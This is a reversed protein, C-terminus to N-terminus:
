VEGDGAKGPRFGSGGSSRHPKGADGHVAPRPRMWRKSPKASWRTSGSSFGFLPLVVILSILTMPVNMGLMLFLAFGLTCVTRTLEVLQVAMFRRVTEVDSSCRQLLDGTNANVHTAYPMHSLRDYLRDRLKKISTESASSALRARLFSFVSNVLYILLMLVGCLWLNSLFTSRGRPSRLNGAPLRAPSLGRGRHRCGGYFPNGTPTFLGVLSTVAVAVMALIFKLKQGKLLQFFLRLKSEQEM